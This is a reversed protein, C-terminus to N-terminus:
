PNLDGKLLPDNKYEPAIINTEQRVEGLNKFVLRFFITVGPKIDRDSFFNKTVTVSSTFCEDQYTLGVGHSLPGGRNGLERTLGVQAHWNETFRSNVALTLQEAKRNEPENPISPLLTYTAQLNLIPQGMQSTVEHRRARFRIRDMLVRSQISFWDFYAYKLSAVYDSWRQELGTNLFEQKNPNQFSFTQGLFLDFRGMKDMQHALNVGYNLRSGGDIRDLGSFRSESFLNYHNFEIYRSDINDIAHGDNLHPAAIVKIMPEIITQTGASVRIFPYRWGLSFQPFLRSKTSDETITRENNLRTQHYFDGRMRLGLTYIDGIHTTYPLSLGGNVSVRQMNTGIRRSLNIMNVDASWTEGYKGQASMFSHRALPLVIPIAANNDNTRLGQFSYNELVSYSRGHFGEVYGKSVLTTKSNLSLLSYKRLYTQDTAREINFGGRWHPTFNFRGSTHIHGRFANHTMSEPQSNKPADGKTISGSFMFEGTEFRKRYEGNLLLINKKMFTPNITLDSHDDIVWYYPISVLTGMNSNIGLSPALFGSRRKVNPAPHSFYPTYAVPVGWMEMVANSYIIDEKEEDWIIEESKIQWLPPAKSVHCVNCPSYTPYELTTKKSKTRKGQYATLKGDGAIIMRVNKIFTVKLDGSLEAYDLFLIRGNEDTLEVNNTATVVNSRENYTVIDAKLLQKNYTIEVHGRATIVGLEREHIISDASLLAALDHSIKEAGASITMFISIILVAYFKYNM